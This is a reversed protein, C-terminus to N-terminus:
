ARHRRMRIIVAGCAALALLYAFASGFSDGTKPTDSSGSGNGGSPKDAGGGAAPKDNGGAPKDSDGSPKDTGTAPIVAERTDTYTKGNFEVSATYIMKGDSTCGAEIETRSSVTCNVTQSSGDTHNFTATASTYDEAWNFVPALYGSVTIRYVVGGAMFDTTGPAVGTIALQICEKDPEIKIVHAYASGTSTSPYLAYYTDDVKATILYKGGDIIESADTVQVYGPIASGSTEGDAAPRFIEM